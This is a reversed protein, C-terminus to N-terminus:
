ICPVSILLDNLICLMMNFNEDNNESANTNDYNYVKEYLSNYNTQIHIFTDIAKNIKTILEDEDINFANLVDDDVYDQGNESRNSLSSSSLKELNHIFKKFKEHEKGYCQLKEANLKLKKIFVKYLNKFEIYDEYIKTINTTSNITTTTTNKISSVDSLLLDDNNDQHNEDRKTDDSTLSPYHYVSNQHQNLHHLLDRRHHQGHNTSPTNITNLNLMSSSYSKLKQKKVKQQQQHHQFSLSSLEGDFMKFISEIENFEPYEENDNSEEKLGIAASKITGVKKEINEKFDSLSFNFNQEESCKKLLNEDTKLLITKALSDFENTSSM